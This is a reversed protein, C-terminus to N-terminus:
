LAIEKPTNEAIAKELVAIREGALKQREAREVIETLVPKDLGLGELVGVLRVQKEEKIALDVLRDVEAKLRAHDHEAGRLVNAYMGPPVRTPNAGRLRDYAAELETKLAIAKPDTLPQPRSPAAAERIAGPDPEFEEKAYVAGGALVDAFYLRAGESLARWTLMVMPLTKWLPKSSFKSVAIKAKDITWVMNPGEAKWAGGDDPDRRLFKIECETDTRTVIEFEIQPHMKIAAALLKAEILFVTRGNEGPMTQIAMMASTPSLGLDLGIMVKVAAQAAEQADNFFGSRAMVEGLEIAAVYNRTPQVGPPLVTDVSIAPAPVAGEMPLVEPTENM